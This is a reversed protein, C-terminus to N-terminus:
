NAEKDAEYQAVHEGTVDAPDIGFYAAISLRYEGYVIGIDNQSNTM